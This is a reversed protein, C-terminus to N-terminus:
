ILSTKYTLTYKRATPDFLSTDQKWREFENKEGVLKHKKDNVYSQQLYLYVYQTFIYWLYQYM